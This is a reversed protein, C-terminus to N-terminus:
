GEQEMLTPPSLQSTSTFTIGWSCLSVLLSLGLEMVISCKGEGWVKHGYWYLEQMIFSSYLQIFLM